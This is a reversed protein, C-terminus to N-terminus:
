TSVFNLINISNNLTSVQEEDFGHKPNLKEQSGSSTSHRNCGYQKRKNKEELGPRLSRSKQFM